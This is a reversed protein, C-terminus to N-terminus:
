GKRNRAQIVHNAWGYPNKYGRSKGLEILEPLTQAQGRQQRRLRQQEKRDVEELDGDVFEVERPIAEWVYGCTPCDKEYSFVVRYCKPCQKVSLKSEEKKKPKQVGDLSWERDEDPFGHSKVNGVHDLIIAEDKGPSPRLCRGVQQLYLSLSKTPRQLIACEVAPLDFGEGVIDVNSLVRIRGDKFDRIVEDRKSTAMSGDIHSAPIGAQQFAYTLHESHNVGVAFVIARKGEAINKYNKVADGIVAGRDMLAAIEEKNYDGGRTHLGERSITAPAYVRYDSLYGDRILDSMKPGMIIDDFHSRLGKGDLRCPTATLGVVKCDAWQIVKDWSGAVAHHCEDVILLDPKQMKNLRRIITQVSALQVPSFPDPRSGSQIIGYDIGTEDFADSTQSILERRHVLFM